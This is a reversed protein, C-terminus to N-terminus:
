KRKRSAKKSVKGKSSKAAKSAKSSKAAKSSKVAKAAAKKKVTKKVAKKATKKAKTIKAPKAPKAKTAKKAAKPKVTKKAAQANKTRSEASTVKKKAKPLAKIRKAEARRIAAKRKAEEAAKKSEGIQNMADTIVRKRAKLHSSSLPVKAAIPYITLQQYYGEIELRALQAEVDSREISRLLTVPTGASTGVLKWAMPIIEKTGPARRPSPPAQPSAIKGSPVNGTAVATSSSLPREAVDAKKVGVESKQGAM